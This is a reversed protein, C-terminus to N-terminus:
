VAKIKSKTKISLYNLNKSNMHDKVIDVSVDCNVRLFFENHTTPGGKFTNGYNYKWSVM